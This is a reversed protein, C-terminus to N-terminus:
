FGRLHEAEARRNVDKDTPRVDQFVAGIARDAKKFHRDEVLYETLAKHSGAFEKNQECWFQWSKFMDLSKGFFKDREVGCKPSWLECCEDLWRGKTDEAKLYAETALRVCDPAILGFKQWKQCGEIQWQLIGPWEDKLKEGLDKIREAPPIYVKFPVIRIRDSFAVDVVEIKPKHNGSVIIKFQIDFEVADQRMLRARMRGGGSMAKLRAENWKQGQNLEQALVLRKGALQALETTHRAFNSEMFMDADVTMAYDGMIGLLAGLYTSKGNRGPGWLFDVTHEDVIGTLAYGSQRQLYDQLQKDRNTVFDLFKMFLPIPMAKPTVATRKSLYDEPAHLYLKGDRLDVTGGPTNLLWPDADWQDTKAAFRSDSRALKEVAAVTAGSAIKKATSKDAEFSAPRTIARVRTFAQLTEDKRWIGNRYVMWCSWMAVYRMNLEHKTAFELAFAEDSYQPPAPPKQEPANDAAAKIPDDPPVVPRMTAKPIIKKKM